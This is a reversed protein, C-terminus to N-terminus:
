DGSKGSTEEDKGGQGTQHQADSIWSDAIRAVPRLNQSRRAVAFRPILGDNRRPLFRSWVERPAMRNTLSIGSWDDDTVQASVETWKQATQRWIAGQETM